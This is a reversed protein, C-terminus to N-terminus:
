LTNLYDLPDIPKNQLRVEFYLGTEEQLGSSGVVGIEQGAAVRNGTQVTLSDCNGYLSVMENDHRLIVTMGFGRLWDAFEVDGDEVAVVKSDAPAKLYIGEWQLRGELRSQGFNHVVQGDTPWVNSSRLEVSNGAPISETSQIRNVLQELRARDSQAKSLDLKAAGLERQLEKVLSERRLRQSSLEQTQRVLDAEYEALAVTDTQAVHAEQTFQALTVQLELLTDESTKSLIKHYYQVRDLTEPSEKSLLWFILPRKEITDAANNIWAHTQVQESFQRYADGEDIQVSILAQSAVTLQQLTERQQLVLDHISQDLSKIERTLDQLAQTGLELWEPEDVQAFTATNVAILLALAARLPYSHM